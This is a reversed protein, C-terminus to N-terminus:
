VGILPLTANLESGPTTKRPDVAGKPRNGSQNDSFLIPRLLILVAVDIGMKVLLPVLALLSAFGLLFGVGLFDPRTLFVISFVLILLGVVAHLIVIVLIASYCARKLVPDKTWLYLGNAIASAICVLVSVFDLGIVSWIGFGISLVLSTWILCIPESQNSKSVEM